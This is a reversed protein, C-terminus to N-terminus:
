TQLIHAMTVVGSGAPSVLMPKFGPPPPKSSIVAIAVGAVEANCVAGAGTGTVAPPAVMEKAPVLCRRAVSHKFIRRAREREEPM